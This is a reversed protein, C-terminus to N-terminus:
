NKVAAKTAAPDAPSGFHMPVGMMVAEVGADDLRQILADLQIRTTIRSIEEGDIAAVFMVPLVMNVFVQNSAAENGLMEIMKFQALVGPKRLTIKRGDSADVTVTFNADRTVQQSPVAEAAEHLTVKLSEM